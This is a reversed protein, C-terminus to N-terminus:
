CRRAARVQDKSMEETPLGDVVASAKGKGAKKNKGKPPQLYFCVM